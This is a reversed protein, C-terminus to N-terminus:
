AGALVAKGKTLWVPPLIQGTDTASVMSKTIAMSAIPEHKRGAHRWLRSAANHRIRQNRASKACPFVTMAM